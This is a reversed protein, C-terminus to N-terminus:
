DLCEGLYAEEAIKVQNRGASKAAYLAEDASRILVEADIKKDTVMTSVGISITLPISQAGGVEVPEAAVAKRMREAIELAGDAPTCPLLIVFEEGGYRALLDGARHIQKSCRAAVVVLCDDGALHGYNDNM